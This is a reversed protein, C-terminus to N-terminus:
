FRRWYKWGDFQVPSQLPLWQSLRGFCGPLHCGAHDLCIRILLSRNNRQHASYNPAYTGLQALVHVPALSDRDNGTVFQSVRLRAIEGGNRGEIFMMTMM